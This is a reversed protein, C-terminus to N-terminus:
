FSSAFETRVVHFSIVWWYKGHKNEYFRNREVVVGEIDCYFSITPTALSLDYVPFNYLSQIYASLDGVLHLGVPKSEALIDIAFTITQDTMNSGLEVDDHLIDEASLGVINPELTEEPEIENPEVTVPKNFRGSDNWGLSDIHADILNFLSDNIFRLNEGASM